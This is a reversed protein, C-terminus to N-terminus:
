RKPSPRESVRRVAAAAERTLWADPEGRALTQLLEVAEPSDLWELVLLARSQRLAEVPLPVDPLERLLGELRM